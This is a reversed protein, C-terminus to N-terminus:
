RNAEITKAECEKCLDPFVANKKMSGCRINAGFRRGCSIMVPAKDEKTNQMRAALEVLYTATYNWAGELNSEPIKGVAYKADSSYNYPRVLEIADSLEDPTM